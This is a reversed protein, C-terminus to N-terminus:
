GKQPSKSPKYMEPKTDLINRADSKGQYTLAFGTVAESVTQSNENM